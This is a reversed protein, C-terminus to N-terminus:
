PKRTQSHSSEADCRLSAPVHSVNIQWWSRKKYCQPKTKCVPFRRPFMQMIVASICLLLHKLHIPISPIRQKDLLCILSNNETSLHLGLSFYYGPHLMKLKWKTCSSIGRTRNPLQHHWRNLSYLEFCSQFRILPGCHQLNLLHFFSMTNTDRGETEWHVMYYEATYIVKSPRRKHGAHKSM